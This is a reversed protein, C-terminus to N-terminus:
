EELTLEHQHRHDDHHHRRGHRERYRSCWERHLTRCDRKNTPNETATLTQIWHLIKAGRGGECVCVCVSTHITNKDGKDTEVVVVM